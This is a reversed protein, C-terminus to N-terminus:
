FTPVPEMSSQYDAGLSDFKSCPSLSLSSLDNRKPSMLKIGINVGEDIEISLLDKYEIEM